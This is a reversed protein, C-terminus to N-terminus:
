AGNSYETQKYELDNKLEPITAEQTDEQSQPMQTPVQPQPVKIHSWAFPM